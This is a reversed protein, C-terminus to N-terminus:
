WRIAFVGQYAASSASLAASVFAAAILRPLRLETVVAYCEASSAPIQPCAQPAKGEQLRCSVPASLEMLAGTVETLGLEYRGAFLGIFVAAPPLLM